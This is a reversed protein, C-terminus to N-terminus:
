RATRRRRSFGIVSVLGTGLLFLSAPEPTAVVAADPEFNYSTPAAGAFGITVNDMYNTETYSGSGPWAGMDLSLGIVQADSLDVTGGSGTCAGEWAAIDQMRANFDSGRATNVCSTALQGSSVPVLSNGFFRLFFKNNGDSDLLNSTTWTNTPVSGNISNDVYWAMQGTMRGGTPNAVDLYMRLTPSQTAPASAMWDFSLATLSSLSGYNQMIGMGTRDAGNNSVSMMLSGLGSRPAATTIAQVGGGTPAGRIPDIGWGNPASPTVIVQAGATTSVLGLLVAFRLSKSM